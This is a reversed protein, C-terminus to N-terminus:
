LIPALQYGERVRYEMNVRVYRAMPGAFIDPEDWAQPEAGLIQSSNRGWPNDVTQWTAIDGPPEAPDHYRVVSVANDKLRGSNGSDWISQEEPSLGWIYDNKPEYYTMTPRRALEDYLERMRAGLTMNFAQILLTDSELRQEEPRFYCTLMLTWDVRYFRTHNRATGIATADKGSKYSVICVRDPGHDLIEPQSINVGHVAQGEVDPFMANDGSNMRFTKIMRVAHDEIARYSM